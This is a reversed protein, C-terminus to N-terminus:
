CTRTRIAASGASGSRRAPRGAPVGIRERNPTAKDLLRSSGAPGPSRM